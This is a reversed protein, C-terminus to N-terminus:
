GTKKKHLVYGLGCLMVAFPFGALALLWMV